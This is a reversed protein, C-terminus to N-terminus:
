RDGERGLDAKWNGSISTTYLGRRQTIEGPLWDFMDTGGELTSPVFEVARTSDGSVVVTILPQRIALQELKADPNAIIAFAIQDAAELVPRVPQINLQGPDTARLRDREAKAALKHWKLEETTALVLVGAVRERQTGVLQDIEARAADTGRRFQFGVVVLAAAALLMAAAAWRYMARHARGPRAALDDITSSSPLVRAPKGGATQERLRQLTATVPDEVRFLDVAAGPWAQGISRGLRAAAETTGADHAFLCVVRGPSRGLQASWALWDAAIRGAPSPRAHGNSGAEPEDRLAGPDMRSSGAALLAGSSSWVWHLRRNPEVIVVATDSHDRTVLPDDDPQETNAAPDWAAAMAHEFAVVRQPALGRADLADLLARIPLDAVALAATRAGAPPQGDDSPRKVLGAAKAPTEAAPLALPQVAAARWDLTASGPQDRSDGRAPPEPWDGWPAPRAQRVAARTLSGGGKGASPAVVWHCLSGRPDLCLLGLSSSSGEALRSKLWSAAEAAASAADAGPAASWSEEDHDGILRLGQLTRGADDRQILLSPEM